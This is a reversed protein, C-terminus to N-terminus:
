QDEKTAAMLYELAWVYRGILSKTSDPASNIRCHYLNDQLDAIKVVHAIPHGALDKIYDRYSVGEQRSLCYIAASVAEGFRFRIDGITADTDEVVDHLLAVIITTNDYSLGAVRLAVRIPHTIYPWEEDKRAYTQGAHKEMAYMLARSVVIDM